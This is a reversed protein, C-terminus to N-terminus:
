VNVGRKLLLLALLIGLGWAMVTLYHFLYGTQWQSSRKSLRIVGQAVGDPGWRDILGQDGQKWLKEGLSLTKRVFLWEYLSDFYGKNVLFKYFFQFKQALQRPGSVTWLYLIYALLIGSLALITPLLAIIEPEHSNLLLADRFVLADGWFDKHLIYGKGVYGSFVAGFALVALPILMMLDVEHLHSMVMENARPKGHFTLCLLRWAYVATLFVSVLGLVYAYKGVPSASAQWAVDLIADKSYYGSFYPLGALALSGIVMLAYSLPVFRWIGGMAEMNQEHSMAHIVAGAGLFLLAKFFAHTVLHFIAIHYAGLGAAFLMYGLQSCTSYAIVRKIDMQSLALLGAFFATTAGVITMIQSTVPAYQYLPSCRAVLFIGATVMTAAHILASVPTPGEMADPLWVHLGIQASKGMAGILLCFCIAEICPISGQFFPFSLDIKSPAILFIEKFELTGFVMYLIGIGLILGLDGVRNVIFAKLAAKNASPRDYWFGILLYSALGVGEWGFFLQIFDRATVLMLMMFTFLSLYGMFRPISPDDAMYSVSYLHVLFSVLSVVMVMVASLTDFHLGWQSQFSGVNIWKMLVLDITVGGLAVEKFIAGAGIVSLLMFGCTIGQSFRSLNKFIFCSAGLFGLFPAFITLLYVM